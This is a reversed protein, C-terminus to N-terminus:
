GVGRGSRLHSPCRPLSGRWLRIARRASQSRRGEHEAATIILVRDAVYTMTVSHSTEAAVQLISTVPCPQRLTAFLGNDNCVPVRCIRKEQAFM